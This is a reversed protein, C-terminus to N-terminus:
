AMTSFYMCREVGYLHGSSYFTVKTQKNTQKSEALVGRLVRRRVCSKWQSPLFKLVQHDELASSSHKLLTFHHAVRKIDSNQLFLGM